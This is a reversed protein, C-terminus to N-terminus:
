HKLWSFSFIKTIFSKIVLSLSYNVEITFTATAGKYNVTIKESGNGKATTKNLTYGSAVREVTGDTYTVELTLGSADIAEGYNYETKVPKKVVKISAVQAPTVTLQAEAATGTGNSASVTYTHEGTADATVTVTWAKANASESTYLKSNDITSKFEANVTNGNEDTVVLSDVFQSTTFEATAKLGKATQAFNKKLTVDYNPVSAKYQTDIVGFTDCYIGWSAMLGAVASEEGDESLVISEASATQLEDETKAEVINTVAQNYTMKVNTISIIDNSDSTLANTLVVVARYYDVGDIRTQTFSVADTIDYFMETASTVTKEVSKGVTAGNEDITQVLFKANNLPTPLKVELQVSEPLKSCVLAFGVGKGPTIYVEENPGTLEFDKISNQDLMGGGTYDNDITDVYVAGATESTRLDGIALIYDRISAEYENAQKDALYADNAEGYQSNGEGLGMPNYIRVADLYFTSGTIGLFKQPANVNIKVNYTGYPMGTYSIVPIQYLNQVGKNIVPVNAILQNSTNYVAVTIQGCNMDTRSIIDFGTGTFTFEAYADFQNKGNADKSVTGQVTMASGNSFKNCGEYSSDYGYPVNGQGIEGNDQRDNIDTNATLNSSTSNDDSVQYWNGTYKIYLGGNEASGGFDDEYYVSTAPIVKVTSYLLDASATNKAPAAEPSVYYYFTEISSLYNFLSFSVKEVGTKYATKLVSVEDYITETTKKETLTPYSVTIRRGYTSSTASSRSLSVTITIDTGNIDKMNNLTHTFSGSNSNTLSAVQNNGVYIYVYYYTTWGSRQTAYYASVISGDPLTALTTRSNSNTSSVSVTASTNNGTQYYTREVEKEGITTELEYNKVIYMTGDLNTFAYDGDIVYKGDALSACIQTGNTSNAAYKIVKGNADVAYRLQTTDNTTGVKYTVPYVYSTGKLEFPKVVNNGVPVTVSEDVAGPQVTAVGNATKITQATNMGSTPESVTLGNIVFNGVDNALPDIFIPKGYDVVVADPNIGMKVIAFAVKVSTYDSIGNVTGDSAITTGTPDFVFTTNTDDSITSKNYRDNSSIIGTYSANENYFMYGDPLLSVLVNYDITTATNLYKEVEVLESMVTRNELSVRTGNENIPKGNIDVLYLEYALSADEWSLNPVPYELQCDNGLYNKYYMKAEENTDYTGAPCEGQMSGDLYVNYTIILEDETCAGLVWYFSEAPVSVDGVTIASATTNYIVNTGNIVGNSLINGSKLSSYAQTGDANFTITEIVEPTNNRHMGIMSETVTIGNVVKGVDGLHYTSYKSITIKPTINYDALAITSGSATHSVTNSMLLNFNAGM